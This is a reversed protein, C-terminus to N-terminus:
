NKERAAPEAHGEILDHLRAAGDRYRSIPVGKVPHWDMLRSASGAVDAYDLKLGWSLRDQIRAIISGTRVITPRAFQVARGFVGSSVDYSPDYCCWVATAVAYLSYIEDDDLYRDEWLDAIEALPALLGRAGPDVLGAGIIAFRDRLGPQAALLSTFFVLGKSRELTGTVLIIPRGDALRIARQSLATPVTDSLIDAPLDWFEIDEIYTADQADAMDDPPTITLRQAGPLRRLLSHGARKLVARFSTGTSRVHSRTLIVTSRRGILARVILLALYIAPASEFTTILLHRVAVADVLANRSFGIVCRADLISAATHAYNARHGIPNRELVLFQRSPM